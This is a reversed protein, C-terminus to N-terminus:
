EDIHGVLSKVFIVIFSVTLFILSGTIIFYCIKVMSNVYEEM